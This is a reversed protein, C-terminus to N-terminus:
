ASDADLIRRILALQRADTRRACGLPDAIADTTFAEPQLWQLLGRSRPSDARGRLEVMERIRV